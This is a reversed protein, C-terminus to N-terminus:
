QLGSDADIPPQGDFYLLYSLCSEGLTRHADAENLAYKDSRTSVLYEKVSFHALRLRAATSSSEQDKVVVILTSCMSLLDKVPDLLRGLPEFRPVESNGFEIALAESIELVTV